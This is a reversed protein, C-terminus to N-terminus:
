EISARKKMGDLPNKKKWIYLLLSVHFVTAVSWSLPYAIYLSELTHHSAFYTFIWMIRFGCICFVSIFMPAISYGLARICSVTMEEFAFIFYVTLVYRVRIMAYSVVEGEGSYLSLITPGFFLSVTGLILSSTVTILMSSKMIPLIRERKGAGYNQSIFSLNTQAFCNNVTYLFGDISNAATNGAVALSGFSNVSSQILVNSISFLVSQLGAPVGMYLIDKLKRKDITLRSFSFKVNGSGNYLTKMVLFASVGQSIITAFAVGAVDIKLIIVFFLNLIVNLIGAFTLYYLPRKTDGDARLIAAGFNYILNFPQGLFIIRMYLISKDIVDSPTDMLSLLTPSLIFGIISLGVGSLFSLTIATHVARDVGKEDKMGVSRAVVVNVGISIGMFLNVLLNTISGTSGIAAMSTHGAFRGVVITDAANFLIQLLGSLLMPIAFLIISSAIPGNLMDINNKKM